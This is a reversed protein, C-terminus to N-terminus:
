ALDIALLQARAKCEVEVKDARIAAGDGRKLVEGHVVVIGEIVQLWLHRDPAIPLEVKDQPELRGAWVCVDQHVTLSGDRGNPSAALVLKDSSTPGTFCKQEYGPELNHEGPDIWIQLFHVLDEASANYESHTIGTGATMRHMSGAEIRHANGVSDKHELIGDVVYTLIEMNEHSHMSFGKSPQVRDENIVRLAQFGVQSPNFYDGFSFSHRTDLWGYDFHGRDESHRITIM